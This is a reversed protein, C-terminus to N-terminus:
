MLYKKGRKKIKYYFYKSLLVLFALVLVHPFPGSIGQHQTTMFTKAATKVEKIDALLLNLDGYGAGLSMLKVGSRNYNLLLFCICSSYLSPYM